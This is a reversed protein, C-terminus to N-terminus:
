ALLRPVVAPAEGSFILNVPAEWSVWPQRQPEGLQKLAM